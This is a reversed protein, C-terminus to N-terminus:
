GAAKPRFDSTVPSSRFFAHRSQQIPDSRKGKKCAQQHDTKANRDIFEAKSVRQDARTCRRAYPAENDNAEAHDRPL